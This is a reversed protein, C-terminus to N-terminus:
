HQPFNSQYQKRLVADCNPLLTFCLSSYIFLLLDVCVAVTLLVKSLSLLTLM